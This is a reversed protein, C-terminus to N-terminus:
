PISLEFRAVGYIEVEGQGCGESSLENHKKAAIGLWKISKKHMEVCVGIMILVEAIKM